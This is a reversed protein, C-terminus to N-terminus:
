RSFQDDPLVKEIRVSPAPLDWLATYGTFGVLIIFSLVFIATLLSRM